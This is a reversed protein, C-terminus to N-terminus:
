SGKAQTCTVIMKVQASGDRLEVIKVNAGSINPFSGSFTESDRLAAIFEHMAPPTGSTNDPIIMETSIQIKSKKAQASVKTSLRLANYGEIRVIRMGKPMLLPLERLFDEWFVRKAVFNRAIIFENQLVEHEKKVKSLQIRARNADTKAAARIRAVKDELTTAEDWLLFGCALIAAMAAACAQRPFNESLGLQPQMGRFLDLEHVTAKMGWKALAQSLGLPDVQYAKARRVDLDLNSSLGSAMQEYAAADTGVQLLCGDVRELLLDKKAHSLLGLLAQEVGAKSLRGNRGPMFMRWAVLADGVTLLAMGYAEGPLVRLCVNWRRPKKAAAAAQSLIIGAMPPLQLKHSKIGELGALLQKARWMSVATITRFTGAALKAPVMSAALGGEMTGIQASVIEAAPIDKEDETIQKTVSYIGRPDIGCIVPAPLRGDEQLKQLAAIIPDRQESFDSLQVVETTSVTQGLKGMVSRTIILTDDTHLLGTARKWAFDAILKRANFKAM